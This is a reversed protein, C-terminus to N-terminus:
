THNSAEGRSSRIQEVRDQAAIQISNITAEKLGPSWEASNVLCERDHVLKRIAVISTLGALDHELAEIIELAVDGDLLQATVKAAKENTTERPAQIAPAPKQSISGEITDAEIVDVTDHNLGTLVHLVRQYLKSEVRGRIEDPGSTSYANVVIRADLEATKLFKLSQPKGFYTWEAMAECVATREGFRQPPGVTLQLNSVGETELIRIRNFEKTLYCNGAIINFQNGTVKAGSLWAQILCRRVTDPGYPPAGKNASGSGRDTKFGYPSDMLRMFEQLIEPTLLQEIAAIAKSQVLARELEDLQPNALYTRYASVVRSISSMQRKESETLVTLGTSHSGPVAVATTM